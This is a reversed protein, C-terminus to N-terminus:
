ITYLKHLTKIKNEYVYSGIGKKVYIILLIIYRCLSMDNFLIM